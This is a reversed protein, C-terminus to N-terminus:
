VWWIKHWVLSKAIYNVRLKKISEYIHAYTNMHEHMDKIYTIYPSMKCIGIKNEQKVQPQKTLSSRIFFYLCALANWGHETVLHMLICPGIYCSTESM